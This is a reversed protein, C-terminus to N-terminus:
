HRASVEASARRSRRPHDDGTVGPKSARWTTASRTRAARLLRGRAGADARERRAPERRPRLLEGRGLVLLGPITSMLNYDVWLGGMTYHVAPYIRMPVKYPDEGTIQEYMRVPQRLARPDSAEGLRKIADAFDLYVGRGGADRRRAGRRLGGEGRALRHRAPRPKRLEPLQAGPLLRAREGPDAGAASTARGPPVWVRGDNRLSESMLTLKSQYDGTVPICTPHIQTFCPNAFLAGRKHARWIATANCGKANTSLYFVNGYGGTALVVADAPLALAIKGTVLDRTVIGRAHGDVVVLDLMEVRPICRSRYRARDAAGAGPLRRSAAASRDPRPRLVHALGARRRVLPEGARRRVRARLARGARRVPRHHQREGGRPPLRESRAVRFDGGKITDYFLRFVSDGDNQYNKAANIGGQAAISHARRPSDQFCFRAGPLRARRAFRRRVRRGPRNRRRHGRVEAQQGPQGAQDRLPPTGLAVRTTGRTRRVASSDRSSGALVAVPMAVNGLVVALAFARPVWRRLSDYRPHELGLSQFLSWAGHYLHLSLLGQAVVYIAVVWPVRFGNVVNAYVDHPDHLYPGMAVGPWTFHALHYLVFFFILPGSWKM